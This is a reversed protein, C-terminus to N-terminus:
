LGAAPSGPSLAAPPRPCYVACRLPHWAAPQQRRRLALWQVRRVGTPRWPGADFRLLMWAGLDITPQLAGRLEDGAMTGLWWDQGDWRLQRARRDRGLQQYYPAVGIGAMAAIVVAMGAGTSGAGAHGALWATLGSASLALLVAAGLRSGSEAAPVPWRVAPAWRQLGM